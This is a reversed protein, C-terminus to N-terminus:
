RSRPKAQRLCNNPLDELLLFVPAQIPLENNTRDVIGIAVVSKRGVIESEEIELAILNWFGYMYQKDGRGVRLVLHQM